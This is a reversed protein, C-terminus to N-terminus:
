TLGEIELSFTSYDIYEVLLSFDKYFGFVTLPSLNYDDSAVWVCPTARLATLTSYVRRLEVNPTTITYNAKKSFARQVLTTTGFGDTEKVSYDNIGASAGPAVTGLEVTTGVLVSSVKVVTSPTTAYFTLRVRCNTYPPVVTVEGTADAEERSVIGGFLLDTLVDYPSFFYDYWTIIDTNDLDKTFSYISMTLGADRFMECKVSSCGTIGLTAVSNVAVGPFLVVVLDGTKTTSTSTQNDFMAWPNTPGLELWWTNGVGGPTHGTNSAQLSEYRVHQYKVTDGLAYTTGVLWAPDSSDPADSAQLQADTTIAVPKLVNLM